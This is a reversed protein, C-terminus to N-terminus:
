AFAPAAFADMVDRVRSATREWTLTAAERAGSTRLEDALAPLSLVALIKEAMSETDWFDGALAHRMAEAVGSQKSLIIPIGASAAELASLGFPEAVSPLVFVDAARLTEQREEDRLFGTFLVRNAIGLEAAERMVQGRMDGDGAFIFYVRPNKELVRRAYRLLHDPGKQLTIRGLFLVLKYGAARLAYLRAPATASTEPARDVGNWVVEVKEPAIGYRETVINKTRNSVAIIRDAAHLGEREIDYIRTDVPGGGAREFETAHVHAILPKGSVRKAAMGAVFSLWDHAYIIDHAERRAIRAAARGYRRVEGVLDNAYLPEGNECVVYAGGVAYPSLPSNIGYATIADEGDPFVIRMFEASVGFHKPLVFTVRTNQRALARAIGECAVGLGGSNFPPFEWGFMLVRLMGRPAIRPTESASEARMEPFYVRARLARSRVRFARAMGYVAM